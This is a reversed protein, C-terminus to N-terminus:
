YPAHWYKWTIYHNSTNKIMHDVNDIGYYHRLYTERVKNQKIGWIRKSPGKGRVRKAVYLSVLPLNNVGCINTADTSQFLVLMRM